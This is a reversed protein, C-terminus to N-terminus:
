MEDDNFWGKKFDDNLKHDFQVLMQCMKLYMLQLIDFRESFQSTQAILTNVSNLIQMQTENEDKSAFQHHIPSAYGTYTGTSSESSDRRVRPAEKLVQVDHVIDFKTSQMVLTGISAVVSVGAHQKLFRVDIMLCNQSQHINQSVIQVDEEFKLPHRNMHLFNIRLQSLHMINIGVIRISFIKRCIIYDTDNVHAHMDTMMDYQDNCPTTPTTLAGEM